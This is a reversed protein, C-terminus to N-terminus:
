VRENGSKKKRKKKRLACICLVPFGSTKGEGVPLPLPFPITPLEGPLFFSYRRLSWVSSSSLTLFSFKLRLIIIELRLSEIRLEPVPPVSSASKRISTYVIGECVYVCRLFFIDSNNVMVMLLAKENVIYDVCM